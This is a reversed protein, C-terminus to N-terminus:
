MRNPNSLYLLNDVSTVPPQHHHHHRAPTPAPAAKGQERQKKKNKSKNKNKSDTEKKSLSLLQSSAASPIYVAGVESTKKAAVLEGMWGDDDDSSM